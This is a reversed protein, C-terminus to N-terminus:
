IPNADASGVAIVAVIMAAGTMAGDVLVVRAAAVEPPAVVVTMHRPKRLLGVKWCQRAPFVFRAPM